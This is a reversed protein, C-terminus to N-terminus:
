KHLLNVLEEKKRKGKKFSINNNEYLYYGLDINLGAALDDFEVDPKLRTMRSSVVLTFLVGNVAMIVAAILIFFAVTSKTM